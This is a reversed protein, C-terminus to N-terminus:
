DLYSIEPRDFRCDKSLPSVEQIIRPVGLGIALAMPASQNGCFIKCGAIVQFLEYFTPTPYWKIYGFENIFHKYEDEFGVFVVNPNEIPSCINKMSIKNVYRKDRNPKDRRTDPFHLERININDNGNLANLIRNWNVSDNQFRHSRAVVIDAIPKPDKCTLWSEKQPYNKVGAAAATCAAINNYKIGWLKMLGGGDKWRDLKITSLDLDANCLVIDIYEQSELFPILDNVRAETFPERAHYYNCLNLVGHGLLKITHLAYILDGIAGCHSYIKSM